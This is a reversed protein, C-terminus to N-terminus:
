CLQFKVLQSHIFFNEKNIICYGKLQRHILHFPNKKVPFLWMTIVIIVYLVKYTICFLSKWCLDFQM